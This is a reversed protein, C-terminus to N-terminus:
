RTAPWEVRTPELIAMKIFDCIMDFKKAKSYGMGSTFPAGTLLTYTKTLLRENGSASVSNRLAGFNILENNCFIEGVRNMEVPHPGSTYLIVKKYRPTDVRIDASPFKLRFLDHYCLALYEPRLEADPLRALDRAEHVEKVPKPAADSRKSKTKPPVPRGEAQMQEVMTRGAIAEEQELQAIREQEKLLKRRAKSDGKESARNLLEQVEKRM